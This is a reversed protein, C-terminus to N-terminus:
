RRKPHPVLATAIAPPIGYVLVVVMADQAQMEGSIGLRVFAVRSACVLFTSAASQWRSSGVATRMRWVYILAELVGLGALMALTM